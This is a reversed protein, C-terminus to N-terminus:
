AKMYEVWYRRLLGSRFRWRKASQEIFGDNALITLLNTL